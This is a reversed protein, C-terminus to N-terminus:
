ECLNSLNHDAAAAAAILALTPEKFHTKIEKDRESLVFSVKKTTTPQFWFNCL